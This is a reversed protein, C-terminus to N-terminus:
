GQQAAIFDETAVVWAQKPFIKETLVRHVEPDPDLCADKLVVSRLDLDFAQRLTGTATKGAGASIATEGRDLRLLVSRSM